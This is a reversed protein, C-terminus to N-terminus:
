QPLEFRQGPYILDPNRIQDRNTQFIQTYRVGRGYYQEAIHWLTDGRRVIVTTDRSTTNGRLPAGPRTQDDSATEIQRAVRENERADTRSQDRLADSVQEESATLSARTESARVDAVAVGSSDFRVEARSLVEGDDLRVADARLLHEGDEFVEAISFEWVGSADAKTSGVFRNDIYLALRAGPAASGTAYLTGSKDKDEYDVSSFRVAHDNQAPEDRKQLALETTDTTEGSQLLRTPKDEQSLAVVAPAQDEALSVIVRDSAKKNRMGDPAIASLRLSYDGPPLPTEPVLIWSGDFDAETEGIIRDQTRVRVKWGAPAIGAIILNGSDEVRVIDFAPATPETDGPAPVDLAKSARAVKKDVPGPQQDQQRKLESSSTDERQFREFNWLSAYAAAGSGILLAFVGIWRPWKM